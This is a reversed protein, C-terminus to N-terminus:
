TRVIRLSKPAILSPRKGSRSMWLSFGRDLLAAVRDLTRVFVAHEARHKVAGVKPDALQYGYTTWLPEEAGGPRPSIREVRVVRGTM